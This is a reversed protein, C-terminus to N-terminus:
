MGSTCRIIIFSYLLREVFYGKSVKQKGKNLLKGNFNKGQWFIKLLFLKELLSSCGEKVKHGQFSVDVKRKGNISANINLLFSKPSVTAVILVQRKAKLAPTTIVSSLPHSRHSCELTNSLVVQDVAFYPQGRGGLLTKMDRRSLSAALQCKLFLAASVKKLNDIVLEPQSQRLFFFWKKNQM